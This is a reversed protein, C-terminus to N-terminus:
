GGHKRRPEIASQVYQKKLVIPAPDTNTTLEMTLEDRFTGTFELVENGLTSTFHIARNEFSGELGRSEDVLLETGSIAASSVPGPPTPSETMFLFRHNDDDQDQWRSANIDVFFPEDGPEAMPDAPDGPGLDRAQAPCGALGATAVLVCM